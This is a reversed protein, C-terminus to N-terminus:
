PFRGLTSSYSVRIIALALFVFTKKGVSGDLIKQLDPIVRDFFPSFPCGFPIKISVVIEKGQNLILWSDQEGNWQDFMQQCMRNFLVNYYAGLAGFRKREEPM